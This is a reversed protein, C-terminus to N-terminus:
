TNDGKEKHSLWIKFNIWLKELEWMLDFKEYEKKFKPNKMLQKRAEQINM